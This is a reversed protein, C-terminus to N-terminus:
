NGSPNSEVKRYTVSSLLSDFIPLFKEQTSNQDTELIFVYKTATSRSIIVINWLSTNNQPSKLNLTYRQAPMGNVSMAAPASLEGAPIFTWQQSKMWEGLSLSNWNNFTKLAILAEGSELENIFNIPQSAFYYEGDAYSGIPQTWGSPYDFEIGWYNNAYHKTNSQPTTSEKKPEDPLQEKRYQASILFGFVLLVSIVVCLTAVFIIKKTSWLLHKNPDFEIKAAAKKPKEM